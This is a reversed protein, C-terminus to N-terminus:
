ALKGALEEGKDMIRKSARVTQANDRGILIKLRDYALAGDLYRRVALERLRGEDLEKDIFERLAKKMVTTRDTHELEAITDIEELLDEPFRASIKKM